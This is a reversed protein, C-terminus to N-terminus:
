KLMGNVCGTIGGGIAGGAAGLAAGGPGERSGWAGGGVAGGVASDKIGKYCKKETKGAGTNTKCDYGGKGTACKAHGGTPTEATAIGATATGIGAFLGAALLGASLSATLRNKSRDSCWRRPRGAGMAAPITAGCRPCPAGIVADDFATM